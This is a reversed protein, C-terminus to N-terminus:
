LFSLRKTRACDTNMEGFVTDVYRYTRDFAELSIRSIECVIKFLTLSPQTYREHVAEDRFGAPFMGVAEFKFASKEADRQAIGSQENSGAIAEEYIADARQRITVYYNIIDYYIKYYEFRFVNRNFNRHNLSYKIKRFFSSIMTLKAIVIAVTILSLSHVTM